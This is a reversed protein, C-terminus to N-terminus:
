RPRAPWTTIWVGAAILVAATVLRPGITEGLLIVAGLGTLVPVVLQVLAARWAALAPLVAYWLM